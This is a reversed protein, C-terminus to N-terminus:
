SEHEVAAKRKRLYSSILTVMLSKIGDSNKAVANTVGLQLLTGLIQKLPNHTSGVAAKKTLYGAALGLTTSFLGGKLDPSEILNKISNKVLNIPKLSEYTVMFQEKLLREDEVQKIELQRISERLEKISSIKGM